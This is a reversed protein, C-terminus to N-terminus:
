KITLVPIAEPLYKKVPRLIAIDEVESLYLVEM